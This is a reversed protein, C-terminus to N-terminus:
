FHTPPLTFPFPSPASGLPAMTRGPHLSPPALTFCLDLLPLLPEIFPSFTACVQYWFRHMNIWMTQMEWRKSNAVGKGKETRWPQKRKEGEREQELFFTLPQFPPPSDFSISFRRPNLSTPTIPPTIIFPRASPHPITLHFSLFMDNNETERSIAKRIDLRFIRYGWEYSEKLHATM